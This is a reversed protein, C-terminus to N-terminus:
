KCVVTKPCSLQSVYVYFHPFHDGYLSQLEVTRNIHTQRAVYSLPLKESM